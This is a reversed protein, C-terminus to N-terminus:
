LLQNTDYTYLVYHYVLAEYWGREFMTKSL